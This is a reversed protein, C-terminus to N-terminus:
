GGVIPDVPYTTLAIGGDPTVRYIDEHRVGGLGPIALVPHGITVTM